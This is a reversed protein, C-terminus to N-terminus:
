LDKNKYISISIYLSISFITLTFIFIIFLTKNLNILIYQIFKNFSSNNNMLKKLFSPAIFSLFYFAFSFNKM